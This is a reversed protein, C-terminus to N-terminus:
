SVGRHMFWLRPPITSSALHKADFPSTVRYHANSVANSVTNSPSVPNPPIGSINATASFTAYFADEIYTGTMSGVTSGASTSLTGSFRGQTGATTQGTLEFSSSAGNFEGLSGTWVLGSNDIAELRDGGQRLDLSTIPAGSNRSTIRNGSNTGNTYFGSFDVGVTRQVDNASDVECGQFLFAFGAMALAALGRWVNKM